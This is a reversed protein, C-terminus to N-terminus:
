AAEAEDDIEDTSPDDDLAEDDNSSEAPANPDVAPFLMADPLWERAKIQSPLPDSAAMAYQFHKVLAAVLDAKKMSGIAGHGDIFGCEKAIAALQERNRRNFFSFDPRWHNRMAVSLDRAVRNFLSDKTDLRDSSEQSFSLAVLLTQLGNLDHDSLGRVAEYLALDKVHMPPFCLWVSEGEEIAFGLKGAFSRARGELVHYTAQAETDKEFARIAQHPRFAALQKVIMVEQAARPSALLVEAVAATKHQAIYRCLPASYAAKVKPPAIPNEAIEEATAKEIQHPVLGERIEVVGRPSLNILVGSKEKKKAKRYQWEPIRYRKKGCRTSRCSM